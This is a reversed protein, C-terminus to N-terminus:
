AFTKIQKNRVKNFNIVFYFKDRLNVQAVLVSTEWNLEVLCM